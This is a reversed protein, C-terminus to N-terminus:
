SVRYFILIDDVFMLRCIPLSNSFYFPLKIAGEAVLKAINLSLFEEAIIFLFPSITDVQRLGCSPSFYSSIKEIILISVHAYCICEGVLDIWRLHFNLVPLSRFPFSWGLKNFAKSVDLKMCFSGGSMKQNLKQMLEHVM